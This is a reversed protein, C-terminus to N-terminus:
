TEGRLFFFFMQCKTDMKIDFCIRELLFPQTYLHIFLNETVAMRELLFSLHRTMGQLCQLTQSRAKIM